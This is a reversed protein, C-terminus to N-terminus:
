DEDCIKQALAKVEKEDSIAQYFHDFRINTQKLAESLKDISKELGNFDYPELSATNILGDFKDSLKKITKEIVSLNINKSGLKEEPEPKKLEGNEFALVWKSLTKHPIEFIIAMEQVTKDIEKMESAAKAVNYKREPSYNRSM